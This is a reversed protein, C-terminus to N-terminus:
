TVKGGKAKETDIITATEAASYGLGILEARLQEELMVKRRFAAVLQGTTLDRERKATGAAATAKRRADAELRAKDAAAKKETATQARVAAEAGQAGWLALSLAREREDYGLRILYESAEGSPMLGRKVLEGVTGYGLDATKGRMEGEWKLLLANRRASPVLLKDLEASAEAEGMKGSVRKLHIVTLEDDQDRKAQKFKELALLQDIEKVSYRMETLADRVEDESMVKAGLAAVLEAKTLDRDKTTDDSPARLEHALLLEERELTIEEATFGRRGLEGAAEDLTWRGRVYLDEVLSRIREARKAARLEHGEAILVEVDAEDAGLEALWTRGRADTVTGAIVASVVRSRLGATLDAKEQKKEGKVDREVFDALRAANTPDYGLDLYASEVDAKTLVDLKRMRRIDVRTLPSYSIQTLLPRWVPAFDVSRLFADVDAQDFTSGDAKKARRQFMEFVQGASPLQWHMAWYDRAIAEDLGVARAKETLVDPYDADLTLDRRSEPTFVERVAMQILDGVPPLQYTLKKYMEWRERPANSRALLKDLQEDDIIGRRHAEISVDIAPAEKALEVAVRFPVADWGQRAALAEADGQGIIERVEAAALEPISPIEVPEAAQATQRYLEITPGMVAGSLSGLSFSGLLLGVLFNVPRTRQVLPELLERIEPTVAPSALIKGPLTSLLEPAEGELGTFFAGLGGGISGGIYDLVWNGIETKKEGVVSTFASAVDFVDAAGELFGGMIENSKRLAVDALSLAGGALGTLSTTLDQTIKGASRDLDKRVQDLAAGIESLKGGSIADLKDAVPKLLDKIRDVIWDQPGSLGAPAPLTWGPGSPAASPAPAGPASPAPSPGPRPSPQPSPGPGPIIAGTTTEMFYTLGDAGFTAVLAM